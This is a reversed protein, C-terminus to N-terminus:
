GPTRGRFFPSLRLRRTDRRQSSLLRCLRGVARTCLSTRVPAHGGVVHVCTPLHLEDRCTSPPCGRDILCALLDVSGAKSREISGEDASGPDRRYVSVGICWYVSIGICRYLILASVGRRGLPFEETEWTRRLCYKSRIRVTATSVVPALM